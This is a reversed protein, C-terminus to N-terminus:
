ITLCTVRSHSHLLAILMVLRRTVKTIYRKKHLEVNGDYKVVYVWRCAVLNMGLPSTLLGYWHVCLVMEEDLTHKVQSSYLRM